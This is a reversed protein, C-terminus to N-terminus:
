RAARLEELDTLPLRTNFQRRYERHTADDPDRGSAARRYEDRQEFGRLDDRRDFLM